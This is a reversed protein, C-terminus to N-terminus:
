ANPVSKEPSSGYHVSRMMGNVMGDVVCLALFFNWAGEWIPEVFCNIYAGIYLFLLLYRLAPLVSRNRWISVVQKFNRISYSLLLAFPIIGSVRGVDLWMNHRYVQSARGGLPYQFLERLGVWFSHVRFSDSRQLSASREYRAALNTNLIYERVSWINYHYFLFVVLAIAALIAFGKIVGVIGQKHYAFQLTALISVVLLIAFQTRTGLLFMYQIVALLLVLFLLKVLVRREHQLTVLATSIPLTNLAGSGTAARYTGTWFDILHYRENGINVLMNLAAYAGFGATLALIGDRIQEDTSGEAIIWGIAFAIVPLIGHHYVGPITRMGILTYSISASLLLWFSPAYLFNFYIERGLLRQRLITVFIFVIPYAYGWNIVGLTLLFLLGITM